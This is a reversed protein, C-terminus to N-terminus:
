RFSTHTKFLRPFIPIQDKESLGHLGGNGHPLTVSAPSLAIQGSIEM